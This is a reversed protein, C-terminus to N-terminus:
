SRNSRSRLFVFALYALQIAWAFAYALLVHRHPMDATYKAWFASM